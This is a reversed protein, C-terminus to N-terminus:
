GAYTTKKLLSSRTHTNIHTNMHKHSLQEATDEPDSGFRCLVPEKSSQPRKFLDQTFGADSQVAHLGCTFQSM